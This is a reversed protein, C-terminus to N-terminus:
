GTPSRSGTASTARRNTAASGLRNRSTTTIPPMTAPTKVAVSAAAM